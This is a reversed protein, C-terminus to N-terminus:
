VSGQHRCADCIVYPLKSHVFRIPKDSRIDIGPTSNTENFIVFNMMNILEVSTINTQYVLM